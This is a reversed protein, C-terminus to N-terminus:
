ESWNCIICRHRPMDNSIVCGGLSYISEDVPAMPMGYLISRISETNGCAPCNDPKETLIRMDLTHLLPSTGNAIPPKIFSPGPRVNEHFRANPTVLNFREIELVVPIGVLLLPRRALTPRQIPIFYNQALESSYQTPYREGEDNCATAADDCRWM